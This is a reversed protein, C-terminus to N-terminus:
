VDLGPQLLRSHKQLVPILAQVAPSLSRGSAHILVIDRSIAPEVLASSAVNRARAEIKAYTPLVAYGLGAAVLALATGVHTVEFAPRFPRGTTEFGTEVLRRIGSEPTLTVLPREGLERWRLTAPQNQDGAQFFAALSDRALHVREINPEGPAFTGIGCDAQGTRVYEALSRPAVDLVVIQIYPHLANFERIITPLLITALLPPAAVAIRGRRRGALDQINRVAFDLDDVVKRVSDRFERGGETLEVRRTTRDFLRLGLTAELDRV